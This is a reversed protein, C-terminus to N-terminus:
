GTKATWRGARLKSPLGNPSALFSVGFLAIAATVISPGAALDAHFSLYLGAVTSLAGLVAAGLMIWHMRRFVLSAAAAPAVLMAMVLVVGVLRFAIVATLAVLALLGMWALTVPVGSAAAMEEDYATFLLEDYFVLVAVLVIATLIAMLVLDQQSVGLINGVIFSNLELAYNDASSIILIGLGFIGAFLLGIATDERLRVLRTLAAVCVATLVGAIAAGISIALTGGGLVFAVAAGTLSTHAVADSLFALGKVVVFTGVVGGTISVLLGAYLARQMFEFQWPETFWEM